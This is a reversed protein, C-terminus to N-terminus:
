HVADSPVPVGINVAHRSGDALGLVWLQHANLSGFMHLVKEGDPGPVPGFQHPTVSVVPAHGPYTVDLERVAAVRGWACADTTGCGGEPGIGWGDIVV